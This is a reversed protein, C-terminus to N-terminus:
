STPISTVPESLMAPRALAAYLNLMEEAVATMTRVAPIGSRLQDLLAPEDVLRRLAGAWADVSAPEVLLGNREHAVLEALGGLNSGLVPIGAAFAEYVVLPGTELWQSPVALLDYTELTPIVDDFALAPLFRIRTDAAIQRSFKEILGRGEEDQVVGYIDLTLGPAAVRSMAELLLHIGKVRAVRGLFAIRINGGPHGVQRSRAVGERLGQRSLTLKRPNAHNRILLDRVWECVAVIHDAEALLERFAARRLGVLESARVATWIGGSLGARGIGYGVVAPLAGLAQSVTRHVGKGHLM